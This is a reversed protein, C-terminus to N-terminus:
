GIGDNAFFAFIFIIWLPFHLIGIKKNFDSFTEKKQGDHNLVILICIPLDM